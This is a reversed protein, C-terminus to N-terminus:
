WFICVRHAGFQVMIVASWEPTGSLITDAEPLAQVRIGLGSDTKRLQHAWRELWAIRGQVKLAGSVRGYEFFESFHPLVFENMRQRELLVIRVFKTTSKDIQSPAQLSFYISRFGITGWYLDVEALM